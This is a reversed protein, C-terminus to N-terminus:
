SMVEVKEAGRELLACYLQYPSLAFVGRLGIVNIVASVCTMITRYSRVAEVEHCYELVPYGGMVAQALAFEYAPTDIYRIDLRYGHHSVMICGRGDGRVVYCHRFGPSLLRQWWFSQTGPTFVVYWVYSETAKYEVAM